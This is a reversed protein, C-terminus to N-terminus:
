PTCAGDVKVWDVKFLEDSAGYNNSVRFRVRFNSSIYASVNYSRSDTATGTYGDLIELVTYTAGGDKSVEVTVADDPDVATRVHFDFSLTASVFGSLNAQRAASPQTGTDPYDRLILYGAIPTGVTVNGASVGAGATDSEVWAGAWSLSGDNNSFSATDFNDKYYGATCTPPPPSCSGDIRITDVKFYEDSVGYANTVRFRVRTNSAIYSTINYTRTAITSGTIGTITELVTYTSGGNNSMEVVVADDADVGSTTHFTFQLTASAFGSLNVQRAASPQTGTDPSDHLHLYGSYPTGVTVNGTSVGAGATDSEIWAGSWSLTGDNNSFSATTFNDKVYGATCPVAPKYGFDVDTRTQGTTLTVAATHATATGDLDFTPTVGAPLTSSVVRVTYSGAALSGFTYNGNTATTTTATVTGSSNLLQVTVGNLGTEGADQVGDGDTDSWVRDGISGTQPTPTCTGDIKVFDVKFLEDSAGYNASVRFRVRFTSSIYPTINYSRSDTATGTYGDLVELVTYTAGGDKSVEVTVADDPDVATRVHFDFSLTATAFGSLNAQRAASPQTGTDPYDRLILYGAIPTGVTVNGASVGAGATDSEIWAGTWSLTGDNNSFSATTFTDQYNGATCTAAPRYGFDVDTRSATLAFTAQHATAIGDLDYTQTVGAPLTASDVRVTYTAEPLNTFTYNGDGATVTNAVETTGLFLRVTVGNLGPEGAEQVGDGDLDKWVRDGVSRTGRYGFDVDTRNQAAALAFSAINATGTGDLDFTQAVGAPLSATVVRVSYNGATLNSFTYNGNGATVQTAIVNGGNDLLQVTVGNIGTESAEQVGNGNTDTWVRDGVSATGRYGFDVDTRNQAAALSFSAINATATGDLDFTQAVGAPLSSTVVRVSYNGAALNSFTYNGNGATVQSAIVTGGSNLLEVTVGNIGTESAEQVGNGNTDLWVRDGVSATGRYGFDVDTRNQGATLTFAAINATGVGDLDF